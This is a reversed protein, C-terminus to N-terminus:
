SALTHRQRERETMTKQQTDRIDIKLFCITSLFDNVLSLDIEGVPLLVVWCKWCSLNPWNQDLWCPDGISNQIRHTKWFPNGVANVNSISADSHLDRPTPLLRRLQRLPFQRSWFIRKLKWSHMTDWFKWHYRRMRRGCEPLVPEESIVSVSECIAFHLQSTARSSFYTEVSVIGCKEIIQSSIQLTLFFIKLVSLFFKNFSLSWKPKSSTRKLRFKLFRFCCIGKKEKSGVM